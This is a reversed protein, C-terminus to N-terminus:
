RHTRDATGHKRRYIWQHKVPDVTPADQLEFVVDEFIQASLLDDAEYCDKAYKKMRKEFADADILRM